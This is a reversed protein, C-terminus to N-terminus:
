RKLEISAIVERKRSLKLRGVQGVVLYKKVEVGADVDDAFDLLTSLNESTNEKYKVELLKSGDITGTSLSINILIL